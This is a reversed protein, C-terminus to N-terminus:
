QRDFCRLKSLKETLYSTVTFIATNLQSQRAGKVSVVLHKHLRHIRVDNSYCPHPRPYIYKITFADYLQIQKTQATGTGSSICLPKWTPLIDTYMDTFCVSGRWQGQVIHIVTKSALQFPIARACFGSKTKRRFPSTWKFRRPCWNMRSSAASTHADATTISSVGHESTTHLTSAVREMRWNGRWKGERADGHAM